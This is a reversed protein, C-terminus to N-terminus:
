QIKNPGQGLGKHVINKHFSKVKAQFDRKYPAPKNVKRSSPGLICFYGTIYLVIFLGHVQLANSFSNSPLNM